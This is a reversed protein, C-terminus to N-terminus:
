EVKLWFIVGIDPSLPTNLQLQYCTLHLLEKTYVLYTSCETHIVTPLHLRNLM